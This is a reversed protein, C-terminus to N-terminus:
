TVTENFPEAAIQYEDEYVIYGPRATRIVDVAIGHDKLVQVLAYMNAVHATASDKFWSLAVHKAHPRSSRSFSAPTTLNERFWEHVEEWTAQEHPLLRGADDLDSLAWFLGQRRGSDADNSHIVFRVFMRNSQPTGITDAPVMKENKADWAMMRGTRWSENAM